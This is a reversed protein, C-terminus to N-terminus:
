WEKLRVMGKLGNDRVGPLPIETVFVDYSSIDDIDKGLQLDDTNRHVYFTFEIEEMKDLLTKLEDPFEPETGIIEMYKRDDYNSNLLSVLKTGTDDVETTVYITKKVTIVADLRIAEAIIGVGVILLAIALLLLLGAPDSAKLKSM